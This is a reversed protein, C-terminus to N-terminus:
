RGSVAIEGILLAPAKVFSGAPFWRPKAGVAMVQRLLSRLDGAITLERVPGALEGREILRGAAGVSLAGTVRNVGSHLGAAHTVYLGADAARLLEELTKKGGEVILNTPGPSPPIRYSGRRGNGTSRTGGRAATQTDYLFGELRGRAILATQRQAVGEGDFPATALGDPALGDDTLTLISGAVAEGELGALPSRGRQVADACLTEGVIAVISAAVHPDLVVPCHRSAPQQAGVLVLARDAAETGIAAPDLEDPHRGLGVAHATMLDAGHGAFVSAHAYCSTREYSGRVGASNVVAVQEHGDGYIVQEVQAVRSDRELAARECALALGIKEDVGVRAFDPHALGPVAAVGNGSPLAAFEDRDATRAVAVAQGAAQDIGADSLDTTYGFGPRDGVVVRLGLGSGTSEELSEVRGGYTRIKCQAVRECFAEAESAGRRVGAVVARDATQELRHM